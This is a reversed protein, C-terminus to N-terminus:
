RAQDVGAGDECPAHRLQAVQRPARHTVRPRDEDGLHHQLLGLGFPDDRLPRREEVRVRIGRRARGGRQAIDQAQPLTEAIRPTGAVQAGSRLHDDFAVVPLQGIVEVPQQRERADTRVRSPRHERECELAVDRHDVGVDSPDERRVTPSRNVGFRAWVTASSDTGSPCPQIQFWTTM